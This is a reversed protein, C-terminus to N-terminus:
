VVGGAYGALWLAFAVVGTSAAGIALLKLFETM